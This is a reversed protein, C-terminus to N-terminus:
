TCSFSETNSFLVNFLISKLLFFFLLIIIFTINNLFTEMLDEIHQLKGSSQTVKSTLTQIILTITHLFTHYTAVSQALKDLVM